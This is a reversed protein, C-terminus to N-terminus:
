KDGADKPTKVYMIVFRASQSDSENIGVIRFEDPSGPACTTTRRHTSTVM